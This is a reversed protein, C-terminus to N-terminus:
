KNGKDLAKNVTKLINRYDVTNQAELAVKRLVRLANAPQKLKLYVNAADLYINWRRAYYDLKFAKEYNVAAAAWEGENGLRYAALAPDLITMRKAADEALKTLWQEYEPSEKLKSLLLQDKVAQYKAIYDDSKPIERQDMRIIHYGYETKVPEGIEGEHLALAAEVFEEIYKSKFEALSDPGCVGGQDSSGPDDSYQKVLASFDGGAVAKRYVENARALAQADTRLKKGESNRTGILIHRVTIQELKARIEAEPAAIKLKKAKLLFFKQRVLNTVVARVLAEKNSFGRFALYMKLEDESAFSKDVLEEAEQNSVKLKFSAGAIEQELALKRVALKLAEDWIRATSVEPGGEVTQNAALAACNIYYQFESDGIVAEGFSFAKGQYPVADEAIHLKTVPGTREVLYWEGDIAALAQEGKNEQYVQIEEFQPKIAVRDTNDNIFGWRGNVKFATLGELYESCEGIEEIDPWAVSVGKQNIYVWEDNNLQVLAVGKNFPRADQYCPKIVINGKHDIYGYKDNLGVVALGEKFIDCYDFQPKVIVEEKTNIYGYKEGKQFVSLGETFGFASEYKPSIVMRGKKDVFGWREKLKVLYRGEESLYLEEFMPEVAVKGQSNILGYLGDKVVCALGNDDFGYVFDYGRVYFAAGQKDVFGIQGDKSIKALGNGAFGFAQDYEPAIVMKGSRDIFGYKDNVRVRALGEKADWLIEYQPQVVVQGQKNIFGQKGDIMIIALDDRYFDWAFDYQPAIVMQGQPNIYGYKDGVQVLAMGREFPWIYDCNLRSLHGRRQDYVGYKGNRNMVLFLDQDLVGVIEKPNVKETSAAWTTNVMGTSLLLISLLLLITKFKMTKLKM